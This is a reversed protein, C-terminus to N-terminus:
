PRLWNSNKAQNVAKAYPMGEPTHAMVAGTSEQIIKYKSSNLRGSIIAKFGNGSVTTVLDGDIMEFAIM